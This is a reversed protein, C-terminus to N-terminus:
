SAPSDPAPPPADPAPAQTSSQRSKTLRNDKKIKNVSAESIGTEKSVEAATKGAKVLEVTRAEIEPTIKVKGKKSKAPKQAQATKAPRGPKGKGAKSPKYNAKVAAFFEEISEFKYKDPLAGLEAARLAEIEALQAKLAIMKDTLDTSPTPPTSPSPNVISSM